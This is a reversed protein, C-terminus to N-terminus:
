DKVNLLSQDLSVGVPCHDSGMVDVLIFADKLQPEMEKDVLVYDIRWGKNNLRCQNRYNWYSYCKEQKGNVHRFSDVFGAELLKTLGSREVTTFGGLEHNEFPRALDIEEHAVNFDGCLVVPKKLQQKLETVYSLFVSDFEQRFPLRKELNNSSPKYVNVLAFKDYELTLVRGESDLLANNMGSWHAHPQTQTLVMVGSYGKKASSSNWFAHYKQIHPLKDLNVQHSEAKTEQLCLIEPQYSGFWGEFHPQRM